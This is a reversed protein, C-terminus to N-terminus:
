PREDEGNGAIKLFVEGIDTATEEFRYISIGEAILRSLLEAQRHEDGELEVTLKRGEVRLSTIGEEKELRKVAREADELLHIEVTRGAAQYRNMIEQVDGDAVLKGQEMVGLASSRRTPFSHLLLHVGDSNV